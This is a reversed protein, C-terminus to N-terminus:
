NFNENRNLKKALELFYNKNGSFHGCSAKDGTLKFEFRSYVQRQPMASEATFLRCNLRLPCLENVCKSIDALIKEKM